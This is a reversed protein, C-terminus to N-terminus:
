EDWLKPHKGCYGRLTHVVNRNVVKTQGYIQPHFPTRKNMEIEMLNWLSSWFKRIVRSDSNSIISTPLGFHVWVNQFFLHAAMEAMIKKKCLFLICMKSFSDVVVDLYNNWKRSMPLGGGFDMSVRKWPCSIVLLPIYLHLKINFPKRTAFM